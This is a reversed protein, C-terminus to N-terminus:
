SRSLSKYKITYKLDQACLSLATLESEVTSLSTSDQKKTQWLLAGNLFMVLTASQCVPISWNSDSFAALKGPSYSFESLDIESYKVNSYTLKYNQSFKLYRVLDRAAKLLPLTPRSMGRALLWTAETIDPRTGRNIWLFSGVFSQYLKTDTVNLILESALAEDFNFSPPLPLTRNSCDLMEHRTLLEVIKTRQSLQVRDKSYLFDIGLAHEIRGLNKCACLNDNFHKLLHNIYDDSGCVGFVDDIYILIHCTKGDSLTKSFLKPETHSQVFGETKVFLTLMDLWNAGSQKLGEASKSLELVCEDGDSDYHLYGKPMKVYITRELPTNSFARKFDFHFNRTKSIM